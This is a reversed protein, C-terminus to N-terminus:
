QNTRFSNGIGWQLNGSSDVSELVYFYTTNPSLGAITASANTSYGSSAMVSPASAFLFPWTTGYMVRSTAPENTSWQVTASTSTTAVVPKSLIPASLDSGGTTTGSGQLSQVKALTMPGVRGYGTSAADGSCVINYKCQFREVASVTLSGYYGTVLGEPYVATDSRLFTQLETVNAGSDGEELTTTVLAEARGVSALLLTGALLSILALIGQGRIVSFSRM